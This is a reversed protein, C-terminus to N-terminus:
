PRNKAHSARVDFPRAALMELLREIPLGIVNSVPGEMCTVFPDNDQIGYGGAKGQWQRGAVYDDIEHSSLTRMTVTSHVHDVQEFQKSPAILAVGTIVSHTSGSLSDLMQRAHEPDEPKGLLARDLAVVTDAGITLADQHRAAVHRAKALALFRAVQEPPLGRPYNEEDIDAPDCVFDLGAERMLNVRQPSRSALVIQM